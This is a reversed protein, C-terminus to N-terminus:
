NSPRGPMAGEARRREMWARREGKLQALKQRQEPSLVRSAEVMAQMMRRSAQEHQAMLQVRLAEVANADVTTQTFQTHLQERLTRTTERQGKLDSRAADFIQRLQVRQEETAGVRELMRGMGPGGMMAGGMVMAGHRPGHDAPAAEAPLSLVGAAAALLGLAVWRTAVTPILHSIRTM